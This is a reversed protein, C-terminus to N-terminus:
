PAAAYTRFLFSLPWEEGDRIAPLTSRGTPPVIVRAM